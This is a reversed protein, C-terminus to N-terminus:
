KCFNLLVSFLSFLCCLLSSNLVLSAVHFNWCDRSVPVPKLTESQLIFLHNARCQWWQNSPPTSNNFRKSALVLFFFFLFHFLLPVAVPLSLSLSLSLYLVFVESLSLSLSQFSINLAWVSSLPLSLSVSDPPSSQNAINSFTLTIINNIKLLSHWQTPQTLASCNMKLPM